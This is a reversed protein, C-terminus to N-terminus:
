MEELPANQLANERSNALWTLAGYVLHFGGFTVMMLLNGERFGSIPLSLGFSLRSFCAWALASGLFLWGLILLSRPAYHRTSLLALGYGVCWVFVISSQPNRNWAMLVSILGATLLPPSFDKLASKMGYSFIPTGLRHNQRSLLFFNFGCVLIFVVGWYCVFSMMPPFPRPLFYGPFILAALITIGGSFVATPASVARYLHTRQMLSRIIILQEQAWQQQNM